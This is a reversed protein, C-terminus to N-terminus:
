LRLSLYFLMIIVFIARVIHPWFRADLDGNDMTFFWDMLVTASIFAM